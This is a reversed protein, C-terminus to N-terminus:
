QRIVEVGAPPIFEFSRAAVGSNTRVRSYDILTESGNFDVVVSRIIPFAFGNENKGAEVADKSISLRLSTLAPTPNHPALQILYNGNSDRSPKAFSATFDKAINGLGTLYSMALNGGNQLMAETSTVIVQKEGPQYFWLTTGNSIIQQEPTKYNFRFQTTGKQPRRLLLQGNGKQPRPLGPLTTVQSFDAQLDKLGAYGQEVTKIVENLTAEKAM